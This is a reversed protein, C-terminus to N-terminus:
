SKFTVAAVVTDINDIYGNLMKATNNVCEIILNSSKPTNVYELIIRLSICFTLLGDYVIKNRSDKNDSKMYLSLIRDRLKILSDPQKYNKNLVLKPKSDKRNVIININEPSFIALFDYINTLLLKLTQTDKSTIKLLRILFKSDIIFVNLYPTLIEMSDITTQDQLNLHTQINKILLHIQGVIPNIFEMHGLNLNYDVNNYKIQEYKSLKNNTPSM